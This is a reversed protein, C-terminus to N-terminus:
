QKVQPIPVPPIMQKPPNMPVPPYIPGSPLVRPNVARDPVGSISCARSTAPVAPSVVMAPRKPIARRSRTASRHNPPFGSRCANVWSGTINAPPCYGPYYPTIVVKDPKDPKKGPPDPSELPSLITIASPPHAGEAGATVALTLLAAGVASNVLSLTRRMSGVEFRVRIRPFLGTHNDGRSPPAVSANSPGLRPIEPGAAPRHHRSGGGAKKTVGRFRNKEKAHEAGPSRIPDHLTHM